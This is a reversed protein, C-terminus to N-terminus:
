NSRARKDSPYSTSTALCNCNQQLSNQFPSIRAFLEYSPCDFCEDIFNDSFSLYFALYPSLSLPLFLPLSLSPSLSLSLSLPFITAPPRPQHALETLLPQHSPPHHPPYISLLPSPPSPASTPLLTLLEYKVQLFLTGYKGFDENDFIKRHCEGLLQMCPQNDELSLKPDTPATAETDSTTTTTTEGDLRVLLRIVNTELPTLLRSLAPSSPFLISRSSSTSTSSSAIIISPSLYHHKLGATM